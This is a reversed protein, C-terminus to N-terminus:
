HDEQKLTRVAQKWAEFARTDQKRLHQVCNKILSAIKTEYAGSDYSREFAENVECIDPLSWATESFYLM